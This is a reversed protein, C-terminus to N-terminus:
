PAKRRPKKAATLAATRPKKAATRAPTRPKKAAAPAPTRPKKAATRPAAKRTRPKPAEEDAGEDVHSRRRTARAVPATSNVVDDFKGEGYLEELAYLQRMAPQMVHAVVDGADVLIWDGSEEGETGIISSGAEKLRDRVHRSLAKSQRASEASAVVIWDAIDTVKRVDIAQIDRAKIDELASIVLKKKALASLKKM